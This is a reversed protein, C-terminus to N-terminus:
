RARISTLAIGLLELLQPTLVYGATGLIISSGAVMVM